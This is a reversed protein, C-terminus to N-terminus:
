HLAMFFSESTLPSSQFPNVKIACDKPVIQVTFVASVVNGLTMRSQKLCLALKKGPIFAKTQRLMSSSGEVQSPVSVVQGHTSCDSTNTGQECTSACGAPIFCFPPSSAFIHNITNNRTSYEELDFLEESTQCAKIDTVYISHGEMRAFNNLFTINLKWSKSSDYQLFCSTMM